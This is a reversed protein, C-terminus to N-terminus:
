KGRIHETKRKGYDNRNSINDLSEIMNSIDNKYMDDEYGIFVSIYPDALTNEVYTNEYIDEFFDWGFNENKKNM